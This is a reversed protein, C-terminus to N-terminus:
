PTGQKANRSSEDDRWFVLQDSRKSLVLLAIKEKADFVRIGYRRDAPRIDRM